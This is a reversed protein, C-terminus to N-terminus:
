HSSSQGKRWFPRICTMIQKTQEYLFQESQEMCEVLSYPGPVISFSVSLLRSLQDPDKIGGSILIVPVNYKKGLTAIYGPAKGYLTQRDSQGEGTIVADAKKIATEISLKKAILEAGSVMEGGIVTL